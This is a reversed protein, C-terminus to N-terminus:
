ATNVSNLLFITVRLGACGVVFGVSPEINFSHITPFNFLLCSASVALRLSGELIDKGYMEALRASIKHASRVPEGLSM